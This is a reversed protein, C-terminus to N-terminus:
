VEEEKTKPWEVFQVVKVKEGLILAKMVRHVGDMLGGHPNLIIPYNLDTKLVRECHIRFDWMSFVGRVGRARSWWVNGAQNDMLKDFEPLDVPKMERVPLESALEWLDTVQWSRKVGDTRNTHTHGKYMEKIQEPIM